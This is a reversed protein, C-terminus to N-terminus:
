TWKSQAGQFTFVMWGLDRGSIPHRGDGHVVALVTYSFGQYGFRDGAQVDSGRPVFVRGSHGPSNFSVVAAISSTPTWTVNGDPDETPRQFPLPPANIVNLGM